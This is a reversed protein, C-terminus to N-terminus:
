IELPYSASKDDGKFIIEYKKKETIYEPMLPIKGLDPVDIIFLPICLGSTNNILGKLINLGEEIQTRFHKTGNILDCQFLYYPKIGIYQLKHLLEKMISINNNVGNLLVSQNALIVKAEMLKDIAEVTKPTIENPHNFHTITWIPKYKKLINVLEKNVIQPLFSLTRTAIRIVEIHRVKAIKKITYELINKSILFPDGGSLIIERINKEKDLYDVINDIQEYSITILNAWNWKRTCYRCFSACQNTMIILCRDPYKKILNKVPMNNKESFPDEQLKENKELEQIDPFIQRKLPDLPDTFDILSLFYPTILFHYIKEVELLEEKLDFIKKLESISHFSNKLQWKYNDWKKKQYM